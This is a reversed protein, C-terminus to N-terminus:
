LRRSPLRTSNSASLLPQTYADYIHRPAIPTSSPIPPKPPAKREDLVGISYSGDRELGLSLNAVEPFAFSSILKPFIRHDYLPDKVFTKLAKGGIKPHLGLLFTNLSSSHMAHREQRTLRLKADLITLRSNMRICYFICLLIAVPISFFVWFSIRYNNLAEFPTLSGVVLENSYYTGTNENIYIPHSTNLYPLAQALLVTSDYGCSKTPKYYWWCCDGERYNHGYATGNPSSPKYWEIHRNPCLCPDSDDDGHACWELSAWVKTTKAQVLALSSTDRSMVGYFSGTLILPILCFCFMISWGFFSTNLDSDASLPGGRSDCLCCFCGDTEQCCALCWIGRRRIKRDGDNCETCNHAEVAPSSVILPAKLSMLILLYRGVGFLWVGVLRVPSLLQSCCSCDYCGFSLCQLLTAVLTCQLLFRYEKEM